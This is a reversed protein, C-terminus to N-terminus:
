KKEPGRAKIKDWEAKSPFELEDEPIAASAEVEAMSRKWSEIRRGEESTNDLPMTCGAAALLLAGFLMKKM